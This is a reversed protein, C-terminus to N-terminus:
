SKKYNLVSDMWELYKNSGSIIQIQIIEPTEYSHNKKIFESLSSFLNTKTKISLLYEDGHEIKENWWYSSKIKQIQICAALKGELIKQALAEAQQETGVTTLVIAFNSQTM